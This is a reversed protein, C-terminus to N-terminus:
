KEESIIGFLSHDSGLITASDCSDMFSPTRSSDNIKNYLAGIKTKGSVYNDLTRRPVNYKSAVKSLVGGGKSIAEEYATAMDQLNYTGYTFPLVNCNDISTKERFKKICRKRDKLKHLEYKEEPTRLKQLKSEIVRIRCDLADSYTDKSYSIIDSDANSHSALVDTNSEESSADESNIYPECVWQGTEELSVDESKVNFDCVLEEIEESSVAESKISPECDFEVEKKLFIKIEENDHQLILKDMERKQIARHAAMDGETNLGNKKKEQTKIAQEERKQKKNSQWVYNYLKRIEKKEDTQKRWFRRSRKRGKLMKLEHKEEPTRKKQLKCELQRIRDDLDPFSEEPTFDSLRFKPETAEKESAFFVHNQSHPLSYPSNDNFSIGNKTMFSKFSELNTPVRLAKPVNKLIFDYLLAEDIGFDANSDHEMKISIDPHNGICSPGNPTKCTLIIMHTQTLITIMKSVHKIRNEEKHELEIEFLFRPKNYIFKNENIVNVLRNQISGVDRGVIHDSIIEVARKDVLNVEKLLSFFDFQNSEYQVTLFSALAFIAQDEKVNYPHEKIEDGFEVSERLGLKEMKTEPERYKLQRKKIKLTKLQHKEKPTRLKQLKSEIAQIQSDLHVSNHKGRAFVFRPNELKKLESDNRLETDPSTCALVLEEHAHSSTKDIYSHFNVGSKVMFSKFNSPLELDKPVNKQLFDFLVNEYIGLDRNSDYSMKISVDPHNLVCSSGNPTKCKLVIMNSQTLITIIKTRTVFYHAQNNLTKESKHELEIEFLLTPKSFLFNHRSIVNALRNRISDEDKGAIHDSIIKPIITDIIIKMNQLKQKGKRYKSYLFNSLTHIAQDEEKSFSPESTKDMNEIQNIIIPQSVHNTLLNDEKQISENKINVFEVPEIPELEQSDVPELKINKSVNEAELQSSTDMIEVKVNNSLNETELPDMYDMPEVKISKSLTALSKQHSLEVEARQDSFKQSVQLKSGTSKNSLPLQVFRTGTTKNNSPNVTKILVMKSPNTKQPVLVMKSPNTKQPVLVMKSPNTKHPVLVMKTSNLKHPILKIIKTRSTTPVVSPALSDKSQDERKRKLSINDLEEGIKANIEEDGKLVPKCYVEMKSM